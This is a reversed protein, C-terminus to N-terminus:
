PRPKPIPSFALGDSIPGMTDLAKYVVSLGITADIIHANVNCGFYVGALTMTSHRITFLNVYIAVDKMKYLLFVVGLLLLIHDYGTITHKAGIYAYPILHAGM